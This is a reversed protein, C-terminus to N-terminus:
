VCGWATRRRRRSASISTTEGIRVVTAVISWIRRMAAIVLRCRTISMRSRWVLVTLWCRVAIATVAAFRVTRRRIPVTARRGMATVTSGWSVTTITAVAVMSSMTTPVALVPLAAIAVPSMAAAGVIDLLMGRVDNNLFLLLLLTAATETRCSAHCNAHARTNNTTSQESVCENIVTLENLRVFM